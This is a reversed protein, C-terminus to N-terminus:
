CQFFQCIQERAFFKCMSNKRTQGMRQVVIESFVNRVGPFLEVKPEECLYRYFSSQEGSIGFEWWDPTPWSQGKVCVRTINFTKNVEESKGCETNQQTSSHVRKSQFTSVQTRLLQICYLVICCPYARPRRVFATPEKRNHTRRYLFRHCLRACGDRKSVPPSKLVELGLECTGHPKTKTEYLTKAFFTEAHM